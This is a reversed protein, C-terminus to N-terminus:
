SKIAIWNRPVLSTRDFTKCAQVPGKLCCSMMLNLLSFCYSSAITQVHCWNILWSNDCLILFIVRMIYIRFLWWLLLLASCRTHSSVIVAFERKLTSGQQRFHALNINFISYHYMNDIIVLTLLFVELEWARQKNAIHFIEILAELLYRFVIFNIYWNM